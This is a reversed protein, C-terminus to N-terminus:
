EPAREEDSVKPLEKGEFDTAAPHFHKGQDAPRSTTSGVLSKSGPLIFGEQYISEHRKKPRAGPFNKQGSEAQARDFMEKEAKSLAAENGAGALKMGAFKDGAEIAGMKLQDDSEKRRRAAPEKFSEDFYQQRLKEAMGKLELGSQADGSETYMKAQEDLKDAESMMMEKAKKSLAAPNPERPLPRHRPRLNSQIKDLIATAEKSAKTGLTQRIGRIATEVVTLAKLKWKEKGVADAIERPTMRTLQQMRFRLAEHGWLTKNMGRLALQSGAYRRRVILKERPTLTNWYADAAADDAHLHIQEESLLSAM